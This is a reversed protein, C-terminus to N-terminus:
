LECSEFIHITRSTSVVLFSLVSRNCSLYLMGYVPFPLRTEWTKLYTPSIPHPSFLQVTGDYYGVFVQGSDIDGAILTQISGHNRGTDLEVIGQDEAGVLHVLSLLGSSLGIILNPSLVRKNSSHLRNPDVFCACTCSGDFLLSFHVRGLTLQKPLMSRSWSTLTSIENESHSKRMSPGQGRDSLSLSDRTIIRDFVLMGNAFLAAGQSGKHNEEIMVRLCLSKCKHTGFELRSSWQLRTRDIKLTKILNIFHYVHKRGRDENRLLVGSDIAYTHVDCDDGSVMLFNAVYSRLINIDIPRYDLDFSQLLSIDLSDNIYQLSYVYIVSYSANAEDHSKEFSLYLYANSSIHFAKIGILRNVEQPRELLLTDCQFNEIADSDWRFYRICDDDGFILTHYHAIVVETFCYVSNCGWELCEIEAYKM